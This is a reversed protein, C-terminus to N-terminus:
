DKDVGPHVPYRAPVPEGPRYESEGTVEVLRGIAARKPYQDVNVPPLQKRKVGQGAVHVHDIGIDVGTGCV